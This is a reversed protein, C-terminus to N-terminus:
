IIFSHKRGKSYGPETSKHTSCMSLPGRCTKCIAADSAETKYCERGGEINIVCVAFAMHGIEFLVHSGDIELHGEANSRAGAELGVVLEATQALVHPRLVPLGGRQALEHLGLVDALQEEVLDLRLQLRLLLYQQLDLVVLDDALPDDLVGLGPILLVQLVHVLGEVDAALDRGDHVVGEELDLFDDAHVLTMLRKPMRCFTGLAM